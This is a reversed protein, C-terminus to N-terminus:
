GKQIPLAWIMAYADLAGYLNGVWTKVGDIEIQFQDHVELPITNM